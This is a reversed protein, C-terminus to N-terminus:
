VPTWSTGDFQIYQDLGSGVPDWQSAIQYRIMGPVPREPAALAVQPVLEIVTNLTASLRWLEGSLWKVAEHDTQSLPPTAPSWPEPIAYLHRLSTM